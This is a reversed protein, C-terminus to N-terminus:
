RESEGAALEDGAPTLGQAQMTQRVWADYDAQSRADLVFIMDSHRTGCFQYCQGRYVGPDEVIFHMENVNGPIAQIKYLTNPASFSHIVDTSRVQILVTAGVPVVMAPPELDDYNPPTAQIRIGNEPYSFEWWWQHGIAEITVDADGEAPPTKLDVVMIFAPVFLGVLIFVPIVTWSFELVSSGHIQAPMEPGRRRYRFIAWILAACVGFFVIFSIALTVQYLTETRKAQETIPDPLQFATVAGVATVIGLIVILIVAIATAAPPRRNGAPNQNMWIGGEDAKAAYFHGLNSDLTVFKQACAGAPSYSRM